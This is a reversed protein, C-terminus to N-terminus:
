RPERFRMTFAPRCASRHARGDWLVTVGDEAELLLCIVDQFPGQRTPQPASALVVRASEDIPADQGHRQLLRWMALDVLHVQGSLVCAYGVDGRLM